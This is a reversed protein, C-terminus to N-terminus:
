PITPKLNSFDLVTNPTIIDTPNPKQSFDFCDLMDNALKDRDTLPPLGFKEEILKLPSTFDFQTHSIFNPKAYPSIILAPVRPGYGYKDVAPPPVNDYFGGFDDWTLIIATDKWYPSRMVADILQTVHWMGRASDATPHESDGFTPVIWSVSPLSGDQLDSYFTKLQVLHSMIEPNDHIKTFGPLPNWLHHRQPHSDEDYYKWSVHSKQLLEVMTPFTYVDFQDNVSPPPNNVMGGSQAAVTYLHNPESPGALSSFFNDCLTFHRAYDWYNPIEHWDYYSLTYKVWDPPPEQPGKASRGGRVQGGRVQGGRVANNESRAKVASVMATLETLDLAGDNDNDFRKLIEAAKQQLNLNSPIGFRNALVADMRNTAIMDALENADLAGNQDKDFRKLLGGASKEPTMPLNGPLGGGQQLPEKVPHVDNPDPKPIVGHWYFSLAQPWEAWLFGDMGGNDMAAHAAQWSHNLDHPIATAHLHFPALEPPGGPRYALKVGAPIGNAGPYTGFYHDFSINEQIIYIFHKIPMSVPKPAPADAKASVSSM